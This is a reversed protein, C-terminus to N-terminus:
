KAEKMIRVCPRCRTMFWKEEFVSRAVRERPVSEGCFATCDGKRGRQEEPIYHTISM